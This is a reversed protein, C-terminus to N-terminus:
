GKCITQQRIEQVTTHINFVWMAITPNRIASIPVNSHTWTGTNHYFDYRHLLYHLYSIKGSNLQIDTIHEGKCKKFGIQEKVLQNMIRRLERVVPVREEEDLESIIERLDKTNKINKIERFLRVEGSTGEPMSNVILEKIVTTTVKLLENDLGVPIGDTYRSVENKYISIINLPIWGSVFVEYIPSLFVTDFINEGPKIYGILSCFNNFMNIGKESELYTAIYRGMEDETLDKISHTIYEVTNLDEVTGPTAGLHFKKIKAIFSKPIYYKNEKKRIAVAQLNLDKIHEISALPIDFRQWFFGNTSVPLFNDAVNTGFLEIAKHMNTYISNNTVYSGQGLSYIIDNIPLGKFYKGKVVVSVINDANNIPIRVPILRLEPKNKTIKFELLEGRLRDAKFNVPDELLFRIYKEINIM